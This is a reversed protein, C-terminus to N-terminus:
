EVPPGATSRIWSVVEYWTTRSFSCGILLHQMSEGVQDCLPYRPPHPLGRRALRDGTWCRDLCALWVFFKVRPPAWSRWNLKWYYSCTVLPLHLFVGLPKSGTIGVASLRSYELLSIIWDMDLLLSLPQSETFRWLPQTFRSHV